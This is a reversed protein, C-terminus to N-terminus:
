LGCGGACYIEDELDFAGQSENLEAEDLPLYDGSLYVFQGKEAYAARIRSDYEVAVRWDEPATEKMRRWMMARKYPCIVCSSSPLNVHPYNAEWWSQCDSRSMKLPDILPYSRDVWRTQSASARRAEDTSIGIQVVAAGDPVGRATKFGLLELKKRELPKIKAKSTCQRQMSNRGGRDVVYLPPRANWHAIEGSEFAEFEERLNRKASTAHFPIGAKVCQRQAWEVHRYVAAPEFGTDAFLVHDPREIEGKIAMMLM